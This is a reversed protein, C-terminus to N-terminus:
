NSALVREVQKLLIDPCVFQMEQSDIAVAVQISYAKCLVEHSHKDEIVFQMKLRNEYEELGAHVRIEQGLRAPRIYKLRTDVIPWMFGSAQMEPYNYELKDLLACRAAELYRMYNGHWAVQMLDVDQFPIKIDAYAQTLTNKIQM